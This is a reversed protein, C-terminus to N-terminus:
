PHWTPFGLYGWKQMSSHHNSPHGWVPYFQNPTFSHNTHYPPYAMIPKHPYVRPTPGRPHQWRRDDDKALIHRRHMRYRKIKRNTKKGCSNPYPADIQPNDDKSEAKKEVKRSHCSLGNVSRSREVSNEEKVVVEKATLSPDVMVSVVEVSNDCTTEAIQRDDLFRCGLKLQLTSPAQFKDSVMSQEHDFEGNYASIEIGMLKKIRMRMQKKNSSFCTM